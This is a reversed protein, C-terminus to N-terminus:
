PQLLCARWHMPKGHRWRWEENCRGNEHTDSNKRGHPLMAGMLFIGVLIAVIVAGCKM